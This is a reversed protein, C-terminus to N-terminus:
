LLLLATYIMGLWFFFSPGLQPIQSAKPAVQSLLYAGGGVILLAIFVYRATRGLDAKVWEWIIKSAPIPKAATDTPSTQATATDRTQAGAPALQEASPKAETGTPSTRASM